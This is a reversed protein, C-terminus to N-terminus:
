QARGKALFRLAVGNNCWRQGTPEPGDDFVHGQHGGCKACHYETRPWVLKYDTRTALHRPISTFFSPWGTGSDFKMGSTFLPLGCAGCLFLGARKEENLSSSFPPETDEEFLVRYANEPLQERWADHSRQLPPELEILPEDGAHLDRWRARLDEVGGADGTSAARTERSISLSWAFGLAAMAMFQRRRM